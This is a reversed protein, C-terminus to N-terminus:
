DDPDDWLWGAYEPDPPASFVLASNREPGVAGLLVGPRDILFVSPTLLLGGGGLYIDRSSGGPVDLVPPEWVVKPHLTALLDEVGRTVAVRGRAELDAEVHARIRSWYPAVAVRWFALVAVTAQERSLNHERVLVDPASDDVLSLLDGPVRIKSRPTALLRVPGDLGRLQANVLERWIEYPPYGGRRLAALAFVGDAVPGISRRLRTRALDAVTFHIRPM